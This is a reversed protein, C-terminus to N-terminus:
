RSSSIGRTAGPPLLPSDITLSLIAGRQIGGRQIGGRIGKYLPTGARRETSSPKTTTSRTADLRSYRKSRTACGSGNPDIGAARHHPITVIVLAPYPSLTGYVTGPRSSAPLDLLGGTSLGWALRAWWGPRQEIGPSGPSAILRLLFEAVFFASILHFANEFLEGYAEGRPEVTDALMVTIGASVMSHHVGHFIKAHMGASDPRLRELPASM